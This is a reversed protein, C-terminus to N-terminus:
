YEASALAFTLRLDIIPEILPRRNIVRTIIPPAHANRTPDDAPPNPHDPQPAAPESIPTSM